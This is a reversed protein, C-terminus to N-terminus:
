SAPSGEEIVSATYSPKTSKELSIDSWLTM